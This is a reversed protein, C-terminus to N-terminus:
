KRLASVWRPQLRADVHLQVDTWVDPYKDFMAAVYEAQLGVEMVISPVRADTGTGGPRDDASRVWKSGETCLEKYYGLPQHFRKGDGTLAIAGEWDVICRPLDAMQEPLVYPPNSVLIDFVGRLPAPLASFMDSQVAAYRPPECQTLGAAAASQMASEVATPDLDCAVITSGPVLKGLAIGICGTGCCVDLIRLPVPTPKPLDKELEVWSQRRTRTFVDKAIQKVLWDTWEETEPRPILLPPRCQINCTLFPQSGLVYALPKHMEVREFVANRVGQTFLICAEESDLRANPGDARRMTTATMTAAWETIWRLETKACYWRQRDDDHASAPADADNPAPLLAQSPDVEPTAPQYHEEYLLRALRDSEEPLLQQSSIARSAFTEKKVVPPPSSSLDSSPGGEARAVV